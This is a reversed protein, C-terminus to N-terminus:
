LVIMWLGAGMTLVAFFPIKKGKWGGALRAGLNGLMLLFLAYGGSVLLPTLTQHIWTVALIGLFTLFVRMETKKVVCLSFFFWLLMLVIEALAEPNNNGSIVEGLQGRIFLRDLGVALIVATLVCLFLMKQNSRDKM